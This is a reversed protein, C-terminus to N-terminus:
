EGGQGKTQGPDGGGLRGIRPDLDVVQAVVGVRIERAEHEVDAFQAFVDRSFLFTGALDEGVDKLSGQIGNELSLGERHLAFVQGEDVDGLFGGGRDPHGRVDIEGFDLGVPHIMQEVREADDDVDVGLLPGPGVRARGGPRGGPRGRRLGFRGRGFLRIGQIRPVGHGPLEPEADLGDDEVGPVAPRIGAADPFASDPFLVDDEVDGLGQFFCQDFLVPELDNQGPFRVDENRQFVPGHDGVLLPRVQEDRNV